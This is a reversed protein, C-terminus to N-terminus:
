RCPSEFPKGSKELWRARLEELTPGRPGIEYMLQSITEQQAFYARMPEPHTRVFDLVQDITEQALSPYQEQIELRNDGAFFRDLLLHLSIRHGRVSVFGGEDRVLVPPLEPLPIQQQRIQELAEQRARLLSVARDIVQDPSAFAGSAVAADMFQQNQSSIQM